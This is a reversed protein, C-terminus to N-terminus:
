LSGIREAPSEAPHRLLALPVTDTPSRGAGREPGSGTWDTPVTLTGCQFGGGCDAWSLAADFAPLPPWTTTTTTSTTTTTTTSPGPKGRGQREPVSGAPLALAGLVVVVFLALVLRKVALRTRGM